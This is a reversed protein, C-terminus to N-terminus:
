DLRVIFQRKRQTNSNYNTIWEDAAQKSTFSVWREELGNKSEYVTWQETMLEEM